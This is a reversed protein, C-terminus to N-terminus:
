CLSAISDETGRGRVGLLRLMLTQLFNGSDSLLDLIFLKPGFLLHRCEKRNWWSDVSVVQSRRFYCRPPGLPLTLAAQCHCHVHAVWGEWCLQAEPSCLPVARRWMPGPSGLGGGMTWLPLCCPCTSQTPRRDDSSAVTESCQGLERTRGAAAVVCSSTEPVVVVLWCLLLDSARIWVGTRGGALERVRFLVQRPRLKRM